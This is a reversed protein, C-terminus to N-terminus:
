GNVTESVYKRIAREINKWLYLYKEKLSANTEEDVRNLVFKAFQKWDDNNHSLGYFLYLYDITVFADNDDFTFQKIYDMGYQDFCSCQKILARTLIIRPYKATEDEMLYADVFGQGFLVDNEAYLNGRVIAGRMLIPESERSLRVQFYNCVAILGALANPVSAEVYFCISDSMIKQKVLAPDILYNGISNVTIHYEEQVRDFLGAIYECINDKKSKLLAKFGLLNLFAIYCDKFERM